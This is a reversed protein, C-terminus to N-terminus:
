RGGWGRASSRLVARRGDFPARRATGAENDLTSCGAADVFPVGRWLGLAESCLASSRVDDVEIRAERALVEFVLADVSAAPVDLRYGGPRTEISVVTGVDKRLQSVHFRLARVGSDPQEEGWVHELLWDPSLVEGRHLALLALLTRRLASGSQRVVGDDGLVDVPGLVRVLSM